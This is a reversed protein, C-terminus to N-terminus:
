VNAGEPLEKKREFLFGLVFLIVGGGVFFLSRDMMKWGIDFYRSLVAIGFLVLAGNFVAPKENYKGYFLLLIIGTFLGINAAVTMALGHPRLYMQSCVILPVLLLVYHAQYPLRWRPTSLSTQLLVAAFVLIAAAYVFIDLAGAGAASRAVQEIFDGCSVSYLGTFIMTGALLLLGSLQDASLHEKYRLGPLAVIVAALLNFLVLDFSHVVSFSHPFLRIWVVLNLAVLFGIVALVLARSDKLTLSLYVLFAAPILAYYNIFQPHAALVTIYWAPFVTLSLWPMLQDRDPFIYWAAVSGLAIALALWEYKMFPCYWAALALGAWVAIRAFRAQKALPWLVLLALAPFIYNPASMGVSYSFNWIGCIFASLILSAPSELVLAIPILPLAWLLLIVWDGTSPIHYAQAILVLSAGWAISALFVLAKGTTRLKQQVYELYYGAFLLALTTSLLVATKVLPGFRHWNSAVFLIVGVGLMVAGCYLIVATLRLPTKGAVPYRHLLLDLQEQSIVGEAGWAQLQERLYATNGGDKKGFRAIAGAMFRVILYLLLLQVVIAM